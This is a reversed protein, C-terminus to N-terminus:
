AAYQERLEDFNLDFCIAVAVKGFDLQIIPAEKGAKIGKEMEGITPFNKDYIGAIEGNRDLIVCSNRLVGENEERIM